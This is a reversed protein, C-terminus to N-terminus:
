VDRTAEFVLRSQRGTKLAQIHELREGFDLSSALLCTPLHKQRSRLAKLSELECLLGLMERSYGGFFFCAFGRASSHNDISSERM